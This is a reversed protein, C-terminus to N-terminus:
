LTGAVVRAKFLSHKSVDFGDDAEGLHGTGGKTGMTLIRDMSKHFDFEVEGRNRGSHRPFLFARWDLLDNPIFLITM